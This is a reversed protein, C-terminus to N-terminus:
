KTARYPKQGKTLKDSQEELATVGDGTSVVGSHNQKEGFGRTRKLSVEEPEVNITQRAITLLVSTASNGELSGAPM